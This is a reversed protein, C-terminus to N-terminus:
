QADLAVQEVTVTRPGIIAEAFSTSSTSSAFFQAQVKINHDGPGIDQMIFNFSNSMANVLVTELLGPTSDCTVKGANPGIDVETCSSLQTSLSTKTALELFNFVVVGPTAPVDDVLVRVVIRALAASNGLTGTAANLNTDVIESQASVGIFLDKGGPPKINTELVTVWTGNDPVNGGTPTRFLITTSSSAAANGAAAGFVMAPSFCAFILYTVFRRM